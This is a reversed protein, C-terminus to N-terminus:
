DGETRMERVTTLNNRRVRKQGKPPEASAGPIAAGRSVVDWEGVRNGLPVNKDEYYMAQGDAINCCRSCAKPSTKGPLVREQVFGKHAYCYFTRLAGAKAPDAMLGQRMARVDSPVHEKRKLYDPLILVGESM